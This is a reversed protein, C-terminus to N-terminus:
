QKFTKYLFFGAGVILLIPLLELVSFEMEPLPMPDPLVNGVALPITLVDQGSVPYSAVMRLNLKTDYDPTRFWFDYDGLFDTSKSGSFIIRNSQDTIDLNIVTGPNIPVILTEAKGYISVGIGKDFKRNTVNGAQTRFNILLGM